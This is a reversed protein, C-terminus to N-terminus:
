DVHVEVVPEVAPDNAAPRCRFGLLGIQGLEGAIQMLERGASAQKLLREM